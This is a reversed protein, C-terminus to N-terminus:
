RGSSRPSGPSRSRPGSASPITSSPAGSRMSVRSRPWGCGAVSTCRARSSTSTAATGTPALRRGRGANRRGIARAVPLEGRPADQVAVQGERLAHRPLDPLDLAESRGPAPHRAGRLARRPRRRAGRDAGEPTARLRGQAAPVLRARQERRPRGPLRDGRSPLRHLHVDRHGHTSEQASAPHSDVGRREDSSRGPGVARRDQPVHRLDRRELRSRRSAIRAQYASAPDGARREAAVLSGYAIRTESAIAWCVCAARAASAQSRNMRRKGVTSASAAAVGASTRRPRPLAEAVVPPCQVQPARRPAITAVVAARARGVEGRELRQRADPRVRRARDGREGEPQRDPRDVDVDPAHEAPDDGAIRDVSQRRSICATASAATGGSPGPVHVCASISRPAVTQRRRRGVAAPQGACATTGSRTALCSPRRARGRACGRSPPGTGGRGVAPQAAPDEIAEACGGVAVPDDDVPRDADVVARAIRSPPRRMAAVAEDLQAGVGSRCADDESARSGVRASRRRSRKAARHGGCGDLASGADAASGASSGVMKSSSRRPRRPRPGLRRRQRRDRGLRHGARVAPRLGEAHGLLPQHLVGPRRDGGRDLREGDSGSRQPVPGITMRHPGPLLPPSPNTAARRRASAPAATM